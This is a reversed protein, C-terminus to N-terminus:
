NGLSRKIRRRKKITRYILWLVIIIVLLSIYLSTNSKKILGLEIAKKRSKIDLGLSVTEEVDRNDFDKYSVLAVLRANEKNFIVDFSATEFDDSDVTGIYVESESLLTFGDPVIRVSVFKADAFGRNVIKFIVKGEEGVIPKEESVSFSIDANGIVKIGITGTREKEDGDDYKLVYPIQYDGPSISNDAKVRFVFDEEEDEEIEDVGDESSGVPTIPLGSFDLALSVDKIDRDLINEVEIRLIAESGPFLDQAFVDTVIAASAFSTVIVLFMCLSFLIKNMMFFVRLSVNFVKRM